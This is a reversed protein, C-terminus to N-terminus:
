SPIAGIQTSTDENSLVDRNYNEQAKRFETRLQDLDRQSAGHGAAEALMAQELRKDSWFQPSNNPM